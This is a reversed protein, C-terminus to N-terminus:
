FTPGVGEGKEVVTDVVCNRIIGGKRSSNTYTFSDVVREWFQFINQSPPTYEPFTAYLGLQQFPLYIRSPIPLNQSLRM